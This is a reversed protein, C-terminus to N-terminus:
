EAIKQEVHLVIVSFQDTAALGSFAARFRWNESLEIDCPFDFVQHLTAGVGQAYNRPSAVCFGEYLVTQNATQPITSVWSWPINTSGDDIQFVAVRNAVNADSTLMSRISRIACHANTPCTYTWSTQVAPNPVTFIRTWGHGDLSGSCKRGYPWSLHGSPELYCKGWLSIGEHANWDNNNLEVEFESQGPKPIGQWFNLDVGTLTAEGVEGTGDDALLAPEIKLTASGGPTVAFSPKVTATTSNTVGIITGQYMTGIPFRPGQCPYNYTDTALATGTVTVNIPISFHTSDIVTIAHDGDTVPTSTSGSFTVVDGTSFGHPLATTVVSPNAITFATISVPVVPARCVIGGTSVTINKGIDQSSFLATASTLTRSQNMTGTTGATTVNLPISFTNANIVTVYWLGDAGPISNTGTINVLDGTTLAHGAATVVTPNALSLATITKTNMTANADFVTRGKGALAGFPVALAGASSAGNANADNDMTLIKSAKREITDGKRRFKTVLKVQFNEPGAVSASRNTNSIQEAGPWFNWGKIRITDKGSVVYATATQYPWQARTVPSFSVSALLAALTFVLTKIRFM